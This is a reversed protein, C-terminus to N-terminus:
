SDCLTAVITQLRKESDRLAAEVRQREAIELHLQRNLLSLEASRESVTIELQEKAQQLAIETQKRDSIDIATGLIQKVRGNSNRLFITDRSLFWRWEGQANRVRYEWEFVENDKLTEITALNGPVKTFDEPHMLTSLFASGMQQIEAPTYGLMASTQNNSYINCNEELDYIYLLGPIAEAVQQIFRQSTTLINKSHTM